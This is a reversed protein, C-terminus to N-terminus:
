SPQQPNSMCSAGKDGGYRYIDMNRQYSLVGWRVYEAMQHSMGADLLRYIAVHSPVGAAILKDVGAGLSFIAKLNPLRAMLEHPLRGWAVLYHALSPSEHSEVASFRQGPMSETLLKIYEAQDEAEPTYVVIGPSSM